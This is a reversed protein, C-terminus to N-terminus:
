RHSATLVVDDVAAAVTSPGAPQLLLPAVDAPESQTPSRASQDGVVGSQVAEKPDLCRADGVARAVATRGSPGQPQIVGQLQRGVRDQSVLARELMRSVGPGRSTVGALLSCSVTGM